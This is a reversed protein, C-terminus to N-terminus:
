DESENSKKQKKGFVSFHVYKKPNLRVDRLLKELEKSANTLNDYMKEDNMLKGATGEGNDLKSLTSSIDDLSKKINSVVAAIDAENLENSLNKFTRSGAEFNSIIKSLKQDNSAVMQDVNGSISKFSAISESLDAIGKKLNQQNEPNFVENLGSITQKFESIMSELDGQVPGIQNTIKSFLDSEVEGILFDGPKALNGEYSPIIALMKEGIIGDKYLRVISQKSFKFEKNLRFEVDLWGKKEPNKSFDIDTVQGVVVGNVTVPSSTTLGSVNSYSTKYTKPIGLLLNKGKLYNFGWVFITLILIAVAGTKFERSLKLIAKNHHVIISM